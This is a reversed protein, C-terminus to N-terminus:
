RGRERRRRREEQDGTEKQVWEHGDMMATTDTEMRWNSPCPEGVGRTNRCGDGAGGGGKKRGEEEFFQPPHVDEVSRWMTSGQQSTSVTLDLWDKSNSSHGHDFLFIAKLHPIERQAEESYRETNSM